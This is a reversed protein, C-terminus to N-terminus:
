FNEDFDILSIVESKQDTSTFERIFRCKILVRYLAACERLFISKQVQGKELLLVQLAKNMKNGLLESDDEPECLDPALYDILFRKMIDKLSGNLEKFEKPTLQITTVDEINDGTDIRKKLLTQLVRMGDNLTKQYEVMEVLDNVSNDALFQRSSELRERASVSALCIGIPDSRDPMFLPKSLFQKWEIPDNEQLIGEETEAQIARRVEQLFLEKNLIEKELVELYIRIQSSSM